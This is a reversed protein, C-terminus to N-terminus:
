ICSLYFTQFSFSCSWFLLILLLLSFWSYTMQSIYHYTLQLLSISLPVALGKSGVKKSKWPPKRDKRGEWSISGFCSVLAPLRSLVMPNFSLFFLKDASSSVVNPQGSSTKTSNKRKGM